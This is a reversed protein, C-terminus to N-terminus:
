EGLDPEYGNPGLTVREPRLEADPYEDSRALDVPGLPEGPLGYGPPRFLMVLRGAYGCLFLERTANRGDVEASCLWHGKDKAV